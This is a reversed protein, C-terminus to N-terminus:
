DLTNTTLSSLIEEARYSSRVLPDSVVYNFGIDYALNEIEKFEDPHVYRFVPLQKLTPRLYQGVTLISCGTSKLDKLLEVIEEKKEGLGVMFGSKVPFGSSGVSAKRLVKLTRDYDAQPRVKLYLRKITEINHNLVDIGSALVIELANMDGKFDPILVEVATSLNIEKIKKVTRAFFSAGGDDLDDRSPSTLVAYKLRMQRIQRAIRDPESEDLSEPIGSRISCFGCDRTCINGMILFTATGRGFCEGINPCKAEECVTHLNKEKLINRLVEAQKKRSLKSKIWDPFHGTGV